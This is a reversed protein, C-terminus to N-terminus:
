FKNGSQSLTQPRERQDKVESQLGPHDQVESKGVLNIQIEPADYVWNVYHVLIKGLAKYVSSLCEAWQAM